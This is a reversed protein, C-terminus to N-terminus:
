KGMLTLNTQLLQKLDDDDFGKKDLSEIVRLVTEIFADGINKKALDRVSQTEYQRTAENKDAIYLLQDFVSMHHSIRAHSEIAQLIEQDDLLFVFEAIFRGVHQHKQYPMMNKDHGMYGLIDDTFPKPLEKAIDHLYGGIQAKLESIGHSYAIERATKAVEVSHNARFPSMWSYIMQSLYIGHKTQYALVDRPLGNLHGQKIQTSSYGPVTMPLISVNFRSQNVEDIPEGVRQVCVIEVMDVLIEIDKWLHLQRLQDSGIILIYDHDELNKFHKVTDITFSPKAQNMEFMSIQLADIGKTALKIMDFRQRNTATIDHQKLPNKFCPVLMLRDLSLLEISQKIIAVHGEHIPDFSGGFLGVRSM